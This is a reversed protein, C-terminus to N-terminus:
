STRCSRAYAKRLGSQRGVRHVGAVADGNGAGTLGIVLVLVAFVTLVSTQGQVSDRGKRDRGTGLIRKAYHYSHSVVRYNNSIGDIVNPFAKTSIHEGVWSIRGRVFTNGVKTEPGRPPLPSVVSGIITM